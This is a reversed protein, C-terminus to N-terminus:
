RHTVGTLKPGQSRRLLALSLLGDSSHPSRCPTPDSSFQPGKVRPATPPAGSYSVLHASTMLKEGSAKERQKGLLVRSCAVKTKQPNKEAGPSKDVFLRIVYVHKSAMFLCGLLLFCM